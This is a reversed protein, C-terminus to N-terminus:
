DDESYNLDRIQSLVNVDKRNRLVDFKLYAYFFTVLLLLISCFSGVM